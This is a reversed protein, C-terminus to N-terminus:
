FGISLTAAFLAYGRLSSLEDDAPGALVGTVSGGFRVDADELGLAYELGVRGTGIGATGSGEPKSVHLLGFGIGLVPHLPGRKHLDLTMEATYQGLTQGIPSASTADGSHGEGRLWAASLRAGVTGTGIDAALNMGLGLGRGTTVGAPGLQLRFPSRYLEHRPPPLFRDRDDDDQAIPADIPRPPEAFSTREPVNGLTVSADAARARAGIAMAATVVGLGVWRRASHRM